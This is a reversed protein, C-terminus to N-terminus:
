STHLDHLRIGLALAEDGCVLRTRKRALEGHNRSVTAQHAAPHRLGSLEQLQARFTQAGQHCLIRLEALDQHAGENQPAQLQDAASQAVQNQHARAM